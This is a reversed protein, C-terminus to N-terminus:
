PVIKLSNFFYEYGKEFETGREKEAVLFTIQYLQDKVVFFMNREFMLSTYGNDDTPKVQYEFAIADHGDITLMYDNLPMIWSANGYGQEHPEVLMDLTQGSRAPQILINVRGFDSPTGHPENPARTPVTLLRPDGLGISIIDTGQIKEESFFWSSPYDFELDVNSTKSPTYHSYPPVATPSQLTPVITPALVGCGAFISVLTGALLVPWVYRIMTKNM